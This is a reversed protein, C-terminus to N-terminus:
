LTLRQKLGKLFATSFGPMYDLEDLSQFGKSRGRYDIIRKAQTASLGLGRLDGFSASSISVTGADASRAAEQNRDPEVEEREAQETDSHNAGNGARARETAGGALESVEGLRGEIV